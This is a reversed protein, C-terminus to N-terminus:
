HSIKDVTSESQNSKETNEYKKNQNINNTKWTNLNDTYKERSSIIM